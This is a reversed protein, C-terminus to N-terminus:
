LIKFHLLKDVFSGALYNLLVFDLTSIIENKLIFLKYYNFDFFLSFSISILFPYFINGGKFQYSCGMEKWWKMGLYCGIIWTSRYSFFCSIVWSSLLRSTLGLRVLTLGLHCNIRNTLFMLSNRYLTDM